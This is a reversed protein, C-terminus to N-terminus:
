CTGRMDSIRLDDATIPRRLCPKGERELETHEPIGTSYGRILGEFRMRSADWHLKVSTTAGHRDKAIIIDALGVTKRRLSGWRECRDFFKDEAEDGRQQPKTRDVYYEERYIFLVRDADQEIDGSERLDSLIPRPEVIYLPNVSM